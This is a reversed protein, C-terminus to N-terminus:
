DQISKIGTRLYEWTESTSKTKVKNETVIWSSEEFNPQWVETPIQLTLLVVEYRRHIGLIIFFDSQMFWFSRVCNWMAVCSDIQILMIQCRIVDGCMIWGSGVHSIMIWCWEVDGLMVLCSRVHNMCHWIKHNWIMNLLCTVTSNRRPIENYTLIKGTSVTISIWKITNPLLWWDLMEM